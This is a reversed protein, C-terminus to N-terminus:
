QIRQGNALIHGEDNIEIKSNLTDEGDGPVAFLGMMMRAGMAQEEPLLGMKSLTDILGNGGVLKLDVGGSPRPLGDFSELDSNDFTFAGTGTLAAGAVEVKIENIDLANLEGPMAGSNEIVAAQQPDLFDFLVKAKGALSVIITAPDRPLQGAPDFMGWIVDSMTFGELAMNLGFDQQENSKQLPVAIAFGAKAMAMSIPIPLEEMLMNMTLNTQSVDYTLGDGSMKLGIQGGESTTNVTGGGDPSQVTMDSSGGGFAFAGDFGFGQNLLANVDEPDSMPPIDGRGGFRLDQMQGAIDASGEGEPDVFLIKYTLAGMSFNQDYSRLDGVTMDTRGTMNSMTVDAAAIDRGIPQDDVTLDALSLRLSDASYDYTMADPTGSLLMAFGSQSYDVRAEVKEGSAPNAMVVVQTVPPLGVNVTGQGTEAFSLQEMKLVTQVTDDDSSFDMSMEVDAVTLTDGARSTTGSVAYGVSEMYSKWDTWVDEATVDAHALSVSAIVALASCSSLRLATPRLFAPM